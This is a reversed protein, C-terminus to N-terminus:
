GAESEGCESAVSSLSKRTRHIRMKHYLTRESTQLRAAIERRTQGRESVANEIVRAEIEEMVKGCAMGRELM